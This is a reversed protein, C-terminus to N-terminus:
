KGQAQAVMAKVDNYLNRAPFGKSEMDNVWAEDITQATAKLKAMDADSFSIFEIGAQKCAGTAAGTIGELIKATQDSAWVGLEQIVKQDEPSISNWTEMRMGVFNTGSGLNLLTIYKSIEVLKFGLETELPILEADIMGRELSTYMDPATVMEPSAGLAKIFMPPLSGGPFGIMLGKIDEVTRVPKKVLHLVNPEFRDTWLVKIDKFQHPILYKEYVMDRVQKGIANTSGAPIAFPLQFIDELPFRGPHYTPVILAADCTGKVTMDYEETPKGLASAAFVKLTVRGNTKAALQEGLPKWLGDMTPHVAPFHTSLRIEITKGATSPASAASSAPAATSGPATTANGCGGSLSGLVIVTALLVVLMLKGVDLNKM